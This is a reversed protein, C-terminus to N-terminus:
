KKVNPDNYIKSLIGDLLVGRVERSIIKGEPNILFTQPTRAINVGFRRASESQLKAEDMDRVGIWTIAGETLAGWQWDFDLPDMSVTIM